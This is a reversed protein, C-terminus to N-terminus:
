SKIWTDKGGGGASVNVIMTGVPAVRTMATPATQAITRSPDNPDPRQMVFARLDVHSPEFAGDSLTPLTSLPIIDQAVFREPTERIESRREELEDESCEPGVTIGTGGYGDIPKVVLEDLRDLVEERQKEDSCLLTPVQGILPEEGLYFDIMDPVLAYVAKDDALGNGPANIITVAGAAMVDRLTEGLKRGDTGESGFLEEEGMRPNLLHIRHRDDGDLRYLIGDDVLLKDATVLAAGIEGSVLNQEYWTTDTEGPSVMCLGLEDDADAGEVLAAAALFAERMIPYAERPHRLKGPTPLIEAFHDELIRRNIHSMGLGGPMRLNDELVIWEGASPSVLDLGCLGARVFGEPVKHGDKSYGPARRLVERDIRGAKLIEGPGYVDRLFREHARVRQELGASIEAWREATIIRPAIDIPYPRNGDKSNITVGLEELDDATERLRATLRESGLAEIRGLVTCYDPRMKADATVSEDHVGKTAPVYDRYASFAGPVGEHPGSNTPNEGAPTTTM